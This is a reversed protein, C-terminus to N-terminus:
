KRALHKFIMCNLGHQHLTPHKMDNNTICAVPIQRRSCFPALYGGDQVGDHTHWEHQEVHRVDPLDESMDELKNVESDTPSTNIEKTLYKSSTYIGRILDTHGKTGIRLESPTYM